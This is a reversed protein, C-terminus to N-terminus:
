EIDEIESILTELDDIEDESLRDKVGELWESLKVSVPKVAIEVPEVYTKSKHIMTAIDESVIVPRYGSSRKVEEYELNDTVPVANSGNERLFKEYVAEYAEAATFTFCDNNASKSVDRTHESVLQAFSEKYEANESSLKVWMGSTEWELHFSDVLKRDRDLNIRSAKLNYGYKFGKSECVYLGEVYVRGAESEDLLIEGYEGVAVSKYEHLHLNKDVVEAYEEPTIGSVEITLNDDTKKKWVADKQVFVTTVLQGNYKRSKVLRVEWMEKASSNYVKIKKGNRLLVMFAIKYGEGHKGITNEDNAKTTSGLLLSEKTLVSTKNTIRVTGTKEDEQVFSFYAKNEPNITENDIANQYLERFAEVIGWDPVYGTSISLEFKSQM